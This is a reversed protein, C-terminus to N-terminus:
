AAEAVAGQVDPLWLEARLPRGPVRRGSARVQARRAVLRGGTHWAADTVALTVDAPVPWEGDREVLVVLM